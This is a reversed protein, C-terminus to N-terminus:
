KEKYVVWEIKRRAIKPREPPPVPDWPKDSDYEDSWEFKERKPSLDDVVIRGPSIPLRQKKQFPKPAPVAEDPSSECLDLMPNRRKSPRRASQVDARLGAVLQASSALEATAAELQSKLSAIESDKSALVTKLEAVEADLESLLQEITSLSM